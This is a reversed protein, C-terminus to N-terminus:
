IGHFWYGKGGGSGKKRGLIKEKLTLKRGGKKYTPDIKEALQENEEIYRQQFDRFKEKKAQEGKQMKEHWEPKMKQWQEQTYGYPARERISPPSYAYTYFEKYYDYDENAATVPEDTSVGEKKLVAKLEDLSMKEKNNDSKDHNYIVTIKSKTFDVSAKIVPDLLMLRYQLRAAHPIDIMESKKVNTFVVRKIM